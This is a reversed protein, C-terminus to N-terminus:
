ESIKFYVEGVTGTRPPADTGYSMKSISEMKTKLSKVDTQLTTINRIAEDVQAHFTTMHKTLTEIATGNHQKIAVYEAYTAPAVKEEVTQQGSAIQRRLVVGQLSPTAM